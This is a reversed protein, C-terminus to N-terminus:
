ADMRLCSHFHSQHSRDRAFDELHFKAVLFHYTARSIEDLRKGRPVTQQQSQQQTAGGAPPLVMERWKKLLNKARRALSENATKRRLHNIYKGLRTTELQEKTIQINELQTIVQLVTDM